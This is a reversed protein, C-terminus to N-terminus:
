PGDGSLPVTVPIPAGGEPTVRVNSAAAFFSAARGDDMKLELLRGQPGTRGLVRLVVATGENTFVREGRVPVRQSGSVAEPFRAPDVRLEHSGRPRATSDQM